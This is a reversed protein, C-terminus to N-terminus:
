SEGQPPSRRSSQGQQEQDRSLRGGEPERDARRVPDPLLRRRRLLHLAERRSYRQRLPPVTAQDAQGQDNHPRRAHLPSVRLLGRVPLGQDCRRPPGGQVGAGVGGAAGKGGEGGSKGGGGGGGGGGR